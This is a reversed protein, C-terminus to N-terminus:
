TGVPVITTGARRNMRTQARNVSAATVEATFEKAAIQRMLAVKEKDRENSGTMADTFADYMARYMTEYDADGNDTQVANEIYGGIRVGTMASRVAAFMTQALQSQNLIETRGGIHGLIEPGAEGALFLTGHADTTGGAYHPLKRVFDNNIIGGSEFRSFRGNSIVGGSKTKIGLIKKLGDVVGKAINLTIEITKKILPGLSLVTWADNNWHENDAALSVEASAYNTKRDM